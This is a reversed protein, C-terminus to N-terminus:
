KIIKQTIKGDKQTVEVIRGGSAHLKFHIDRDKPWAPLILLEGSVPDEQLLMEELGIVASGGWNHDPMWDYGPGWFAPFRFPGDALKQMTLSFADDTQGLCAAWINDQKWGIHTRHKLAISDCQYTNLAMQYLCLTGEQLSHEPETIYAMRWPWVPYLQPTEVNNIREWTEAPAICLKYRPEDDDTPATGLTDEQMYAPLPPIRNLMRRVEDNDKYRLYSHCVTHLAAITSASNRTIKYTECGSGPYIIMKGHADDQTYHQDFFRLCSLIMPEYQEIDMGAYRHAELAMQCFELATDWEYELWRNNEVGPDQGNGKKDPHKGYEAPNPLGFNEMQETYCAGEHGWYVRSRLEATHLLRLYYDLQSRMLDTDGSKLMGWYVLRQNQSTHTGGGWKRYDPTFSSNPTLPSSHPIADTSDAVFTFLGGNFKTPWESHANCGLMYRFLRYNRLAQGLLSDASGQPLEIFSRHMYNRWWQRSAKRDRELNVQKETQALQKWWADLSSQQNCLVIQAHQRDKDMTVRGGFIRDKLPNYLSDKYDDLRQQTVCYDFVTTDRNQHYFWVPQDPLAQRNASLHDAYTMTGAPLIWKWSSQQCEAKSLPRDEERWSEYEVFLEPHIEVYKTKGDAQMVETKENGNASLEIHVVPRETDAWLTITHIGTQITMYGEDVWLNQWFAGHPLCDGTERYRWGVHFRGLKLLTNNEDFCGSQSLYFYIDYNEPEVWVNMGIDGGGLPMSGASGILSPENWSYSHYPMPQRDDKAQCGLLTASLFLFNLSRKMTNNM